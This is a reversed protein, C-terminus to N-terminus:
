PLASAWEKIITSFQHYNASNSDFSPFDYDQRGFLNKSKQSKEKQENRDGGKRVYINYWIRVYIYLTINIFNM